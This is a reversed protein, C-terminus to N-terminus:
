DTYEYDRSTDTDGGESKAIQKMVFRVLPNYKTYLLAGAIAKVRNPHWGTEEIFRNIVEKVAVECRARAADTQGHREVGAESLTVSLFVTPISALEVLHEKIFQVMRREHKGLHVSAALIVTDYVSLDISAFEDHINKVSADFGHRCLDAAIHKAVKRTQGERTAYIIGISRMKSRWSTDLAIPGKELEPSIVPSSVIRPMEMAAKKPMVKEL